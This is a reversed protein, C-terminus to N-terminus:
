NQPKKGLTVTEEKKLIDSEYIESSLGMNELNRIVQMYKNHYRQYEREDYEYNGFTADIRAKYKKADEIHELINLVLLYNRLRYLDENSLDYTDGQYTVRTKNDKLMASTSSENGKLLESILDHADSETINELSSKTFIVGEEIEQKILTIIREDRENEIGLSIIAGYQVSLPGEMSALDAEEYFTQAYDTSIMEYIGKKTYKNLLYDADAVSLYLMGLIRNEYNNKTDYIVM